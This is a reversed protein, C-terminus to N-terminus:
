KEIREIVIEGDVPYITAKGMINIQPINGHGVQSEILAIRANIADLQADRQGVLLLTAIFLGILILCISLEKM